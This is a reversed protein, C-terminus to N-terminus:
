VGGRWAAVIRPLGFVAFAVAGAVAATVAVVRGVGVGEVAGGLAAGVASGVAGAGARLGDAVAAGSAVAVERLGPNRADTPQVQLVAGGHEAVDEVLSPSVPGDVDAVGSAVWWVRGGSPADSEQRYTMLDASGFDFGRGTGLLGGLALDLGTGWGDVTRAAARAEDETPAWIKVWARGGVQLASSVVPQPASM